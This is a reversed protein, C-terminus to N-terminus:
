LIWTDGDRTLILPWGTEIPVLAKGVPHKRGDETDRLEMRAVIMDDQKRLNRLYVGCLSTTTVLSRLDCTVAMENM